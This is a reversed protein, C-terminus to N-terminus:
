KQTGHQEGAGHQQREHQSRRYRGRWRELSRRAGGGGAQAFAVTASCSLLVAALISLSNRATRM